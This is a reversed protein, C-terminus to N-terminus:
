MINFNYLASIYKIVSTNLMKDRLILWEWSGDKFNEVGASMNIEYDICISREVTGKKTIQKENFQKRM